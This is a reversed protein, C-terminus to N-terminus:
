AGRTQELAPTNCGNIFDIYHHWASACSREFNSLQEAVTAGLRRVFAQAGEKDEVTEAEAGDNVVSALTRAMLVDVYKCYSRAVLRGLNRTTRLWRYFAACFEKSVVIEDCLVEEEKEEEAEEEGGSSAGEDDACPRKRKRENVFAVFHEWGQRYVENEEENLYREVAPGWNLAFSAGGALDYLKEIVAGLDTADTFDVLIKDLNSAHTRAEAGALGCSGELFEVFDTLFELTPVHKSASGDDSARELVGGRQVYEQFYMWSMRYAENKGELARAMASGWERVVGCGAAKDEVTETASPGMVSTLMPYVNVSHGRASTSALEHARELWRGFKLRFEVGLVQNSAAAHGVFAKFKGWATRYDDDLGTCFEEVM